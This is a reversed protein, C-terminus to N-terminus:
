TAVDTAGPRVRRPLRIISATLLVVGLGLLAYGQADSAIVYDGEPRSPVLFGVLGDFGAVYALGWLGRGLALLTAVATAAGWALGWWVDHIAVTALGTVAGALLAAPGVLWGLARRM